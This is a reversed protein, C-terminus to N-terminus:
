LKEKIAVVSRGEIGAGTLTQAVDDLDKKPYMTSLVFGGGDEGGDGGGVGWREDEGAELGVFDELAQVTDNGWFRRTIRRGGQLRVSVTVVEGGAGGGGGAAEEATGAAAPLPPEAPLRQERALRVSFRM